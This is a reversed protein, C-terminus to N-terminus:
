KCRSRMAHWTRYTPTANDGSHGHKATQRNREATKKRRTCGCSKHAGSKLNRDSVIREAGCECRCVWRFQSRKGRPAPALITFEGFREGPKLMERPYKM